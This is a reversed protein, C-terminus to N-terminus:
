SEAADRRIRLSRGFEALRLDGDPYETKLEAYDRAMGSLQDTGIHITSLEKLKDESIPACLAKYLDAYEFRENHFHLAANRRILSSVMDAAQVGRFVEDDAFALAAIRQKVDSYNLRLTRYLKYVKPATEEEDDCIVSLSDTDKVFSIMLMMSVTFSSYHPNPGLIRRVNEPSQQFQEVNVAAATIVEFHRRICEIFPM